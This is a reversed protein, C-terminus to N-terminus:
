VIIYGTWYRVDQLQSANVQREQYILIRDGYNAHGAAALPSHKM